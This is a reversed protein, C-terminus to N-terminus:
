QHNDNLIAASFFSLEFNLPKNKIEMHHNMIASVVM